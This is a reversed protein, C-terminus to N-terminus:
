KEWVNAELWKIIVDAIQGNNKELMMMHSNGFIGIDPLVLNRGIGGAAQIRDAANQCSTVAPAWLADGPTHDGFVALLAVHTFVSAVDADSIVCGSPPEVDVVAKVLNPRAIAVGTGQPGSMSHVSVVAPGIKDFLAALANVRTAPDALYADTNPVLQAFYQDMVEVPFQTVPYPVFPTPGIRFVTWARERTFGGLNRLLTPDAEARARNHLTPDFGSRARGAQDVIYVPIGHRVYDLAWGDRGDPTTEYTKGTHGSGHVLVIPTVNRSRQALPIMYQVYLQNIIQTGTPYSPAVVGNVYFSGADRLLLPEKGHGSHQAPATDHVAGLLFTLASAFRAFRTCRRM